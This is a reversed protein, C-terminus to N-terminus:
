HGAIIRAEGHGIPGGGESGDVVHRPHYPTYEKFVAMAHDGFEDAEVGNDEGDPRPDGILSAPEAIEGNACKGGNNDLTNQASQSDEVEQGRGDGACVCGHPLSEEADGDTDRHEGAAVPNLLNWAHFEICVM